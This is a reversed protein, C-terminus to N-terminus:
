FDNTLLWEWVPIIELFFGTSEEQRKEDMTLILGYNIGTEKMAAVLARKERNVTEIHSLDHCVQILTIDGKKYICFDVETGAKSKYYFVQHGKRRFELFV